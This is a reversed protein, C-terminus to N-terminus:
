CLPQSTIKRSYALALAPLAPVLYTAGEWLALHGQNANLDALALIGFPVTLALAMQSAPHWHFRTKWLVLATAALALGALAMALPPLLHEGKGLLHLPHYPGPTLTIFVGHWLLATILAVNGVQMAKRPSHTWLLAAMLFPWALLVIRGTALTGLLLGLPLWRADPKLLALTTATLLLALPLMDNGVSALEWTLPCLMLLGLVVSRERWSNLVALFVALALVVVLPQLGLLSFPANLAIWGPGPSLPNGFYTTAEYPSHGQMLMVAGVQMADDADSGLGVLKRADAVPYAVAIAMALLPLVLATPWCSDRFTRLRAPPYALLTIKGALVAMALWPGWPLPLYKFLTRLGPIIVLAFLPILTMLRTLM